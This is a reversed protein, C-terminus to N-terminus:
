AGCPRRGQEAVFKWEQFAKASLGAVKAQDGVEAVASAVERIGGIVGALGGAFAGAVFGGMMAKGFDGIKASTTALAQNIRTTTRIMDREMNDTAKRSNLSMERYTRATVGSAKAM